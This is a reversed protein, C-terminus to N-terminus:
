PGREKPRLSQLRRDIKCNCKTIQANMDGDIILDNHKPIRRVFSSLENYFTIIDIKDSGNTPSYWSVITTSFNGNFPICIM